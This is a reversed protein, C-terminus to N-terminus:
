QYSIEKLIKIKYAKLKFYNRPVKHLYLELCNRGFKLNLWFLFDKLTYM